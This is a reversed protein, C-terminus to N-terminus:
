FKGLNRSRNLFNVEELEMMPASSVISELLQDIDVRDEEEGEEELGPIESNFHTVNQNTTDTTPLPTELATIETQNSM